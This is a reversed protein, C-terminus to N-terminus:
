RARSARRGCTPTSPSRRTPRPCRSCGACSTPSTTRPPRPRATRCAPCRSTCSCCTPTAATARSARRRAPGDRHRRLAGAAAGRREAEVKRTATVLAAALVAAAVDSLASGVAEQDVLGLLDACAVRLLEERRLGRAAAVAGEWDERRRVTAVFATTSRPARGPSCSPTTPSCGCRRRRAASCTPSSAPPPSCRPWGSPPGARTACCGCTGPRRASRTPCRGSRCCGPTPTPRTPSGASCRRCCRRSSRRGGPCARPSRRSTACRSPRSRRLRAGRAAGQGGGAHARAQDAPLRAVASLLPRYFLKEHLRRVERGYGARERSFTTM